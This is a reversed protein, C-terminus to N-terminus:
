ECLSSLYERDLRERRKTKAKELNRFVQMIRVAVNEIETETETNLEDLLVVLQGQRSWVPNVINEIV